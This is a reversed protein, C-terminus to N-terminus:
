EAAKELIERRLQLLALNDANSAAGEVHATRAHFKILARRYFSLEEGSTDQMRSCIELFQGRADKLQETFDGVFGFSVDSGRNELRNGSNTLNITAGTLTLLLAYGSSRLKAEVTEPYAQLYPAYSMSRIHGIVRQDELSIPQWTHAFLNRIKRLQELDGFQEDTVLGLSYAAKIRSSFTGMPAGFGVVLQEAAKVPLMFAQLLNGLADEAFAALSLVLGRDDQGELIEGIANLDGFVEDEILDEDDIENGEM